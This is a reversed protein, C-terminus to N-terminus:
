LAALYEASLDAAVLGADRTFDAESAGPLRRVAPVMESGSENAIVRMPNYFVDGSAFTVHHDLVGYDNRPVFAFGVRGDPTEVYWRGDAHEVSRGLGPAV